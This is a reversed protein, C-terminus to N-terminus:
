MFPKNEPYQFANGPSLTFRCPFVAPTQCPKICTLTEQNRSRTFKVLLDSPRCLSSLFASYNRQFLWWSTVDVQSRDAHFFDFRIKGGSHVIHALKQFFCNRFHLTIATFDVCLRKRAVKSKQRGRTELASHDMPMYTPLEGSSTEGGAPIVLGTYVLSSTVSALADNTASGKMSNLSPLQCM